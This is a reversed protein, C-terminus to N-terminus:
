AKERKKRKKENQPLKTPLLRDRCTSLCATWSHGLVNAPTTCAWTAWTEPFHSCLTGGRGRKRLRSGSTQISLDKADWQISSHTVVAALSEFCCKFRKAATMETLLAGRLLWLAPPDRCCKPSWYGSGKGLLAIWEESSAPSPGEPSCSVASKLMAPETILSEDLVLEWSFGNRAGQPPLWGWQGSVM